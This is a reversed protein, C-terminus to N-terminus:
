GKKRNFYVIILSVQISLTLFCMVMSLWGGLIPHSDLFPFMLIGFVCIFYIITVVIAVIYKIM